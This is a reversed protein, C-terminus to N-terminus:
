RTAQILLGALAYKNKRNGHEIANLLMHIGSENQKKTIAEFSEILLRSTDQPNLEYHSEHRRLDLPVYPRFQILDEVQHKQIFNKVNEEYPGKENQRFLSLNCYNRILPHGAKQQYFKLINITDDDHIEELLSVLLPILDSQGSDFIKKAIELFDKKELSSALILFEERLHTSIEHLLNQDKYNEKSSPTVKLHKLTGGISRNELFALDRSDRLLIETLGEKLKPSRSKLKLLSYLANIRVNLQEHHSLSILVEESSEIESLAYIAFLDLNRALNEIEHIREKQGLHYLALLTSLKVNISESKLHSELIPISSDNKLMQFAYSTAEQELVGSHTALIKISPLLDDRHNNAVAIIAEARVKENPHNLLKALMKTADHSGIIGFFQPFIPLLEPHVKQMLAELQPVIKESKEQSLYLAAELRIPLYNSSMAKYLAPEVDDHHSKSLFHISLLQIEPFHSLVSTKLIDILRDNMSLSAGFLALVQNEIMESKSGEEILLIAIEELLEIDHTKKNELHDRYLQFAQSEKGTKLLYLIRSKTVDDENMTGQIELSSFLFIFFIFNYFLFKLFSKLTYNM